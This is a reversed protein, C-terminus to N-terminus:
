VPKLVMGSDGDDGSVGNARGLHNGSVQSRGVHSGVSVAELPNEM